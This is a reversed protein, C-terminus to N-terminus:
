TRRCGTAAPPRISKIWCDYSKFTTVILAALEPATLDALAANVTILDLGMM